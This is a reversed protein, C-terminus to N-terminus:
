KSSKERIEQPLSTNSHVKGKASSKNFEMPKPNNQKWKWENRHMNQNRLTYVDVEFEEDRGGWLGEGGPLRVNM